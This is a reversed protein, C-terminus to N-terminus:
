VYGYKKAKRVFFSLALLFAMVEAACISYWIGSVGFLFPLVLVASTEFLMTRCFSIAASVFGNNLATFFSSAYLNFGTLLFSLSYARLAQVTMEFLQADYRVFIGALLPAILEATLTLVAEFIVIIRISKKLLGKLEDKNGAGYHYGVIPASGMSYGIFVAAFIFSVYMIVGYVAVGNAGALRMLQWNYLMNVVSMSINTMFESSGNTCAKVLASVDMHTKGLRLRSKNPCIFYVLPILGGISQSIMTAAAAGPIGLRLVAIFFADLIMNTLGAAITIVLGFQPREAVVLFSQFTNQLMFPILALLLIRGYRVCHPLLAEDAGLLKAMPVLFIEGAVTFLLGVAILVYVLLSFIEQAKKEDGTGFTLAVLASGGTGVMFGIAGLIMLFPMIINVAAFAEAGVFNSVFVGDVVGYFSTLIMMIISPFTFRLLKKYTFHDSLSINM